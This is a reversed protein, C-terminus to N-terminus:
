QVAGAVNRTVAQNVQSQRRAIEDATKGPETSGNVTINTTQNIVAATPMNRLIGAADDSALYNRKATDAPREVGTFARVAEGINTSHLFRDGAARTQPDGNQLEWVAYRLQEDLSSHQVDKGMHQRFLNLRDGRLQEIGFATGSDGPKTNPNLGSEQKFEAVMAAAQVNSLGMGTLQALAYQQRGAPTGPDNMSAAHGVGAGKSNSELDALRGAATFTDWLMSLPNLNKPTHSPLLLSDGVAEGLNHLSTMPHSAAQAMADLV